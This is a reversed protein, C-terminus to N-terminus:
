VPVHPHRQRSRASSPATCHQEAALPAGPRRPRDRRPASPGPRRSRERHDVIVPPSKPDDLDELLAFSVVADVARRVVSRLSSTAAPTGLTPSFM